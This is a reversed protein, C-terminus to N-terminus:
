GLESVDLEIGSLRLIPRFHSGTLAENRVRWNSIQQLFLNAEILHEEIFCKIRSKQVSKVSSLMQKAVCAWRGHSTTFHLASIVPVFGFAGDAFSEAVIM